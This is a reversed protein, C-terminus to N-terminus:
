ILDRCDVIFFSFFSHYPHVCWPRCSRAPVILSKRSTTSHKDKQKQTVAPAFSSFIQTLYFALLHIQKRCNAKEKYNIEFCTGKLGAPLDLMQKPSCVGFWYEGLGGDRVVSSRHWQHTPAALLPSNSSKKKKKKKRCGAVKYTLHSTYRTQLSLSKDTISFAPLLHVSRPTHHGTSHSM